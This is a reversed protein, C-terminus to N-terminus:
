VVDDATMEEGNHFLVGERLKLELTCDDLYEWSTALAPVIESGMGGEPDWQLLTDFIQQSVVCARAEKGVQPDLSSIDYALAITLTDKVARDEDSNQTSQNNQTGSTGNNETNQNGCGFLTTSLMLISLLISIARKM